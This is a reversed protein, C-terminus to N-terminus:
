ALDNLLERRVEPPLDREARGAPHDVVIRAPAGPDALARAADPPVPFRLFHVAAM